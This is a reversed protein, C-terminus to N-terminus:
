TPLFLKDISWIYEVSYVVTGSVLQVPYNTDLRQQVLFQIVPTGRLPSLIMTMIPQEDQLTKFASVLLIPM